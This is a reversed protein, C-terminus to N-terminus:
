RKDVKKSRSIFPQLPYPRIPIRAKAPILADYEVFYKERMARSFNPPVILDGGGGRVESYWGGEGWVISVVFTRGTECEPCNVTASGLLHNGNVLLSAVQGGFLSQPGGESHGKLWDFSALPIPLPDDRDPLDRNFIVLAYKINRAITSSRNVIMLAPAEPYVFRLTIDPKPAPKESPAPPAPPSPPRPVAISATMTDTPYAHELIFAEALVVLGVLGLAIVATPIKTPPQFVNEPHIITPRNNEADRLLERNLDRAAMVIQYIVIFGATAIAPFVEDLPNRKFSALTLRGTGFRWAEFVGALLLPM